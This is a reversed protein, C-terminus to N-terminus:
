VEYKVFICKNDYNNIPLSNLTHKDYLKIFKNYITVTEFHYIKDLALKDLLKGLDKLTPDDLITVVTCYCM